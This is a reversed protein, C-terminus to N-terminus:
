CILKISKSIYEIFVHFCSTNIVFLKPKQFYYGSKSQLIYCVEELM